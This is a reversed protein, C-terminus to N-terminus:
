LESRRINDEGGPRCPARAGRRPDRARSSQGKLAHRTPTRTRYPIPQRDPAQFDQSSSPQGDRAARGANERFIEAMMSIAIKGVPPQTEALKLISDCCEDLLTGTMRLEQKALWFLIKASQSQNWHKKSQSALFISQGFVNVWLEAWRAAIRRPEAVDSRRFATQKLHRRPVEDLQSAGRRAWVSFARM